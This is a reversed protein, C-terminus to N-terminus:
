GDKVLYLNPMDLDRKWPQMFDEKSVSGRKTGSKGDKGAGAREGVKPSKDAMRGNGETKGLNGTKM